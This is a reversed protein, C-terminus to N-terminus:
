EIYVSPMTDLSPVDIWVTDSTQYSEGSSTTSKMIAKMQYPFISVASCIHEEGQLEAENQVDPVFLFLGDSITSVTETDYGFMYTTGAFDREVYNVETGDIGHGDAFRGQITIENFYPDGLYEGMVVVTGAPLIGAGTDFDEALEGVSYDMFSVDDGIYDLLFFNSGIDQIAKISADDTGDIFIETADYVAIRTDTADVGPKKFYNIFHKHSDVSNVAFDGELATIYGDKEPSTESLPVTGSLSLTLVEKEGHDHPLICDSQCNAVLLSLEETRSSATTQTIIEGEETAIKVTFNGSAPITVHNQYLLIGSVATATTFTLKWGTETEASTYLFPAVISSYEIRFEEAKAETGVYNGLKDVAKISYEMATNNIGGVTDEYSTGTTFGILAGNRYVQFGQLDETALDHSITLSIEKPSAEQYSTSLSYSGESLGSGGTLRYERSHNDMYQILRSEKDYSAMKEAGSTSFVVGWATFFDTLDKEVVSSVILAFREENGYASYSGKKYEKNVLNYFALPDTDCYAQQLQWYMGLQTFVNNSIGTNGSTVKLYVDDYSVRSDGYGTGGDWTQALLSYINNTIEVRGMRDLNHGIEHAIGWGFLANSNGQGTVSTPKGQALATVSGYQIGIHNGGAYMFADTMRMYRINQRGERPNEYDDLGYAVNCVMLLEEWALVSHYIAEIKGERTSYGSFGAYFETAPVSLLVNRLSIETANMPNYSPNNLTTLAFEDMEDVYDGIRALIEGEELDYLDYLDLVPICWNEQRVGSKFWSDIHLTIDEGRDGTYVYYLVGGKSVDNYKTLQEVTIINRGSELVIGAGLHEFAEAYYQSPYLTVTEGQPIDAYVVLDTNAYAILGLPSLNCLGPDDQSNDISTLNTKVYGTLTEKRLLSEAMDLERNLISTNYVYEGTEAVRLRLADIDAQTVDSRLTTFADDAFLATIEENIGNHEYFVIESISVNTYSGDWQAAAIKIQTIDEVRPFDVVCYNQGDVDSYQISYDTVNYSYGTASNIDDDGCWIAVNVRDLSAHYLGEVKAVYVLYSMDYPQDFTFTFGSSKYWVDAVWDTAYDEDRVYSIDWGNPYLDSKINSSNDMTIKTVASLPLRGNEPLTPGDLNEKEPTVTLINSAPSSGISNSCTVYVSYEVDNEMDGVLISTSSTTAKQTYAETSNTKKMWVTYSTANKNSNWKLEAGQDIPSAQLLTTASPATTPATTAMVQDSYSSSWDGYTSQLVFYYSTFNELGGLTYSTDETNITTGYKGSTTGYSLRYGSINPVKDWSLSVSENGGVAVVNEVLGDRAQPDEPVLDVVFNVEQLSVYDTGGQTNEVATVSVTITKVVVRAGLSIVVVNTEEDYSTGLTQTKIGTDLVLDSYVAGLTKAEVNTTEDFYVVMEADKGEEDEYVVTVYGSQLAGEGLPSTLQIEAMATDEELVIPITIPNEQSVTTDEGTLSFQVPETSTSNFLDSINGKTVEVGDDALQSEMKVTDVLDAVSLFSTEQIVASNTSSMNLKLLALDQIDVTGDGTLDHSHDGKQIEAELIAFDQEDVVADKNLDGYTFSKSNTFIDIQKSTKDISILESTYSAHNNGTLAIKYNGQPLDDVKFQYSQGSQSYTLPYDGIESPRDNLNVTGLKTETDGTVQLLSFTINRSAIQVGTDNNSFIVKSDLTGTLTEESQSTAMAPSIMNLAMTLSLSANAYRITTDKMM